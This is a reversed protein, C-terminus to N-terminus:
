QELNHNRVLSFKSFLLFMCIQKQHSGTHNNNGKSYQILENLFKTNKIILNIEFMFVPSEFLLGQATTWTM